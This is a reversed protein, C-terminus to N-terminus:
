RCCPCCVRLHGNLSRALRKVEQYQVNIDDLSDNNNLPNIVTCFMPRHNDDWSSMKLRDTQPEWPFRGPAKVEGPGPADETFRSRDDSDPEIEMNRRVQITKKMGFFHVFSGSIIAFAVCAALNNYEAM